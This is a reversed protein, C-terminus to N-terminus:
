LGETCFILARKLGQKGILEISASAELSTLGSRSSCCCFAGTGWFWVVASSSSLSSLPMSTWSSTLPLAKSRFSPYVSPNPSLHQIPLFGSAFADYWASVDKGRVTLREAPWIFRFGSRGHVSLGPLRCCGCPKSDCSRLFKPVKSMGLFSQPNRGFPM